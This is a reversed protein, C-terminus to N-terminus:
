RSSTAPRFRRLEPLGAGDDIGQSVTELLGISALVSLATAVVDVPVDLDIALEAPTVGIQHSQAVREQIAAVTDPSLSGRPVLSGFLNEGHIDSGKPTLITSLISEIRGVSGVLTEMSAAMADFYSIIWGADQNVPVSHNGVRHGPLPVVNRMPDGSRPKPFRPVPPEDGGDIMDSDWSTM